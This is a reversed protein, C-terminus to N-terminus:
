VDIQFSYKRITDWILAAFDPDVSQAIQYLRNVSSHHKGLRLIQWFVAIDIVKSYKKILKKLIEKVYNETLLNPSYLSELIALELCSVQFGYKGITLKKSFKNLKTFLESNGSAYKKFIIKKNFMLIETSQKEWNVITLEEPQDFNSIHLELAKIGAIYRPWRLYEKCHNRVITWYFKDVIEQQTVKSEQDKIYFIDKKISLMYWRNKLYYIMKYAKKDSYEHDLIQQIMSKVKDCHIINNEYRSLKKVVTHFYQNKMLPKENLKLFM